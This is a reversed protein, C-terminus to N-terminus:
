QYYLYITLMIFYSISSYLLVPSVNESFADGVDNIFINFLMPSLVNVRHVGKIINIHDSLFRKCKVRSHCNDYM